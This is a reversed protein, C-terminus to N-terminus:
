QEEYIWGGRDRDMKGSIQLGKKVMEALINVISAHVLEPVGDVSKGVYGSVGDILGADACRQLIGCEISEDHFIEFKGMLIALCAAIGYAGWNSITATVLLDTETVPVIGQGCPCNCRDGFPIRKQIEERINGMGIENGGDGIGITLIGSSKADRMLLDIKAVHETTEKGRVSHIYGKENMGGKEISIIAAPRYKQILQTSVEAAEHLGTPFSLVSAAHIPAKSGVAKIAEEPKLVKFGAAQIVSEMATVLEQEILIIPVAGFAQHVARALVAAGVPGDNEGIQTSIWPRDPWGTAIFVPDGAKISRALAQAADLTLPVNSKERAARYLTRIVGRCPIDISILQDISESIKILIEPLNKLENNTM